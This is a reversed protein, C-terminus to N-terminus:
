YQKYNQFWQSHGTVKHQSRKKKSKDQFAMLWLFSSAITPHNKSTTIVSDKHFLVAHRWVLNSMATYKYGMGSMDSNEHFRGPYEQPHRLSPGVRHLSRPHPFELHIPIAPIENPLSKTTQKPAMNFWPAKAMNCGIHYWVPRTALTACTKSLHRTNWVGDSLLFKFLEHQPLITKLAQLPAVEFTVKTTPRDQNGFPSGFTQSRKMAMLKSNQQLARPESYFFAPVRWALFFSQLM